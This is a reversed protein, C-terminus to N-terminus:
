FPYGIGFNYVFKTKDNFPVIIKRAPDWLKIGMDFRIILFSFNFRLGAGTGVAIQRYFKSFYFEAGPRANDPKLTWVNGADLFLAGHLFGILKARLELNAELLINGPQEFSYNVSGDPNYNVFEGPGLRKLPWARINNLGGTFFYKEYPLVTSYGFPAAIGTNLRAVLNSTKTIPFYRRHDFNFKAFQYYPLGLIKGTAQEEVLSKSDEFAGYFLGGIEFFLRFYKAKINKTVDNDNYVYSTNMSSIISSKFSTKLNNGQLQLDNLYNEFTPAIRKLNVVNLGFPSVSYFQFRNPNWRYNLSLETNTRTYEFRETYRYGTSIITKPTFDNFKFRFKTPLLILPFILNLNGGAEIARLSQQNEQIKPQQEYSYRLNAELIEFGSFLRRRKFSVNFFPGPLGQGQSVNVNAGVETTLQYRNLTNANLFVNLKASDVEQYSVNIFKFIDKSGLLNQTLQTKSLSYYDGERFKIDRGLIKKSYKTQGHVYTIGDKYITDKVEAKSADITFALSDLQYREHIGENPNAIEIEIAAVYDKNLTDVYFVIFQRQFRFYGNNKLIRNIQERELTLANAQYREGKQIPSEKKIYKTLISDITPDPITYKVKEILHPRNEKLHYTIKTKFSKTVPVAKVEANFFGASYLYSRLNDASKLMTTSDYFVPKEGVATMLWNGNTIKKNLKLKKKDRKYTLQEQKEPDGEYKEIKKNFRQEVKEIRQLYREKNYPKFFLFKERKGLLYAKLAFKYDTFIFGKNAQQKYYESLVYKPDNTKGKIKQKYLVTKNEYEPYRELEKKVNVCANM